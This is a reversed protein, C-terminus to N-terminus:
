SRKLLIIKTKIFSRFLKRSKIRLQTMRLEQVKMKALQSLHRIAKLKRSRAMPIRDPLARNNPDVEEAEEVEEEELPRIRIALHRKANRM